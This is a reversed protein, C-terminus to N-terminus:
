RASTTAAPRVRLSPLPARCNGVCSAGMRERFEANGLHLTENQRRLERIYFFGVQPLNHAATVKDGVNWHLKQAHIREHCRNLTDALQELFVVSNLYPIEYLLAHERARREWTRMVAEARAFEARTVEMRLMTETDLRSETMLRDSLPAPIPGVVPEDNALYFGFADTTARGDAGARILLAFAPGGRAVEGRAAAFVIFHREPEVRVWRTEESNADLTTFSGDDYQSIEMSGRRTAADGGLFEIISPAKPDDLRYFHVPAGAKEQWEDGANTRSLTTVLGDAGFRYRAPVPTDGRAVASEWTGSIDFDCSDAASAVGCLGALAVAAAAVRLTRM